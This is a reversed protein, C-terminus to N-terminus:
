KITVGTYYFKIIEDYTYGQEAMAKAGYQSMGVNHGWGSGVFAYQTSSLVKGSSSTVDAAEVGNETIVSVSAGITSIEGGGSIVSAGMATIQTSGDNVTILSEDPLAVSEGPRAITFHRSFYKVNETDEMLSRAEDGKFTLKGGNSSVFVLEYVNGAPTYSEIYVDTVGSTTYGASRLIATLDSLSYLYAWSSTPHSISTDYTDIKSKLYPVDLTWSLGADETAGGSSSHYFAQILENDYYICKGATQAVAAELSESYAGLYVGRYVQCNTTPCVDFGYDLHKTTSMAFTRACVAQAKLAEISWNASMEYPVVGAVYDDIDVFNIVTVDNGAARHYQFGGYYKYGKFWTQGNEGSEVIPEIALKTDNSDDYEFLIQNTAMKCVTLCTASGGVISSGPYESAFSQANAESSFYDLRVTFYGDTYAVFGLDYRDAVSRAEAYSSYSGSLEVHYAGLLNYSGGPNEDLYEGSSIYLNKDKAITIGEIGTIRALEVFSDNEYYGFKFGKGVSNALNASPLAGNAYYLGVRLVSGYSAGRVNESSTVQGSPLLSGTNDEYTVRDLASPAPLISIVLVFSLLLIVISRIKINHILVLSM